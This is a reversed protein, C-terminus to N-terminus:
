QVSDGGDHWVPADAMAQADEESPMVAFTPKSADNAAERSAQEIEQRSVGESNIVSRQRSRIWAVPVMCASVCKPDQLRMAEERSYIGADELNCTYGRSEKGWFLVDNGVYGHKFSALYYGDTPKDVEALAATVLEAAAHTGSGFWNGPDYRRDKQPIALIKGALGALVARLRSLQWSLKDSKCLWSMAIENNQDGRQNAETLFERLRALEVQADTPQASAVAEGMDDNARGAKVMAAMITQAVEIPEYTNVNPLYTLAKECAAYLDPAAAMLKGNAVGFDCDGFYVSAILSGNADRIHDPADDIYTRDWPGPTFKLESM